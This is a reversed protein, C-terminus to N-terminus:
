ERMRFLQWWIQATVLVSPEFISSSGMGSAAGMWGNFRNVNARVVGVFVEPRTGWHGQQMVLFEEIMWDQEVELLSAADSIASLAEYAKALAISTLLNSRILPAWKRQLDRFQGLLPGLSEQAEELGRAKYLLMHYAGAVRSTFVVKAAGSMEAQAVIPAAISEVEVMSEAAMSCTQISKSAAEVLEGMESEFALKLDLQKSEVFGKGAAFAVVLGVFGIAAEVRNAFFDVLEESSFPTVSLWSEANAYLVAALVLQVWSKRLFIVLILPSSLVILARRALVRDM